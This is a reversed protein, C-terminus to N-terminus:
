GPEVTTWLARESWLESGLLGAEAGALMSVRSAVAAGASASWAQYPCLRDAAPQRDAGAIALADPSFSRSHRRPV